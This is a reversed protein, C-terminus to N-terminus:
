LSTAERVTLVSTLPDGALGPSAERNSWVRERLLALFANAQAETDFDLDVYIYASGDVPTRVTSSRVGATRRMEAFRDFTQKWVEFATIPHEIRLTHM